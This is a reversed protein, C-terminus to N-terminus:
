RMLYSFARSVAFSITASDTFNGSFPSIRIRSEAQDVVLTVATTTGGVTAYTSLTQSAQPLFAAPINTIDFFNTTADKEALFTVNAFVYTDAYKRLKIQFSSFNKLGNTNANNSSIYEEGEDLYRLWRATERHLWNVWQRPPIEERDFGTDRKPLPPPLFNLQGSVGDVNPVVAWDPYSDPRDAM